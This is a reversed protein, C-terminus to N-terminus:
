SNRRKMGFKQLITNLKSGVSRKKEAFLALAQSARTLRRQAALISLAQSARALESRLREIEMNQSVIDAERKAGVAATEELHQAHVRVREASEAQALRSLKRYHKMQLLAAHFGDLKLLFDSLPELSPVATRDALIVFGRKPGSETESSWNPYYLVTKPDMIPELVDLSLIANEGYDDFEFEPRAPVEFDDIMILPTEFNQFIIKLEDALPLDANWHADLYFFIAKRKLNEDRSLELLFERSDKRFLHIGERGAVRELAFEFYRDSLECSYVDLGSVDNFFLTTSARFTGTEVIADFKVHKMLEQFFLVRSKQGNFPADGWSHPRQADNKDKTAAARFALSALKEFGVARLGRGIREFDDATRHAGWLSEDFDPGGYAPRASLLDGILVVLFQTEADDPRSSLLDLLKNACERGKGQRVLELYEFFDLEM